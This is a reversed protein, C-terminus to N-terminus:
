ISDLLEHYYWSSINELSFINCFINLTLTPDQKLDIHVKAFVPSSIYGIVQEPGM